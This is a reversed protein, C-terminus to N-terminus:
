EQGAQQWGLPLRARAQASRGAAVVDVWAINRDLSPVIQLWLMFVGTDRSRRVSTRTAHWCGNSDRIWLVPLPSLGRTYAWDVDEPTVGSALMHVNTGGPEGHHLGLIALRAGDLEPLEVVPAAWSGPVPAGQPKRRHYRTLMSRWPEPLDAPPPATIGHGSIGLSACLGALQGPVPSDASLADAAQLAAIIDGLGAAPHSLLGPSAAALEERTEQPWGAAVTLIRAAIVGLLLEGPSRAVPAVTVDPVPLQSDPPDLDIRTAPEGPTMTVDLWGIEHPPDPRLEVVGVGFGGKFRFHYTAGRDDTATFQGFPLRRQPQLGQEPESGRVGPSGAMGIATTFWAGGPTQVWALLRLEGRVGVDRPIVQGVPVVRWSAQQAATREGSVGSITAAETASRAPQIRMLKELRGRVAPSLEGPGPGTANLLSRQRAAVARALDAQIQEAPGADVAGVACLAQSVLALGPSHWEGAASDAPLATVRRMEAEALLRLYAEARERNM